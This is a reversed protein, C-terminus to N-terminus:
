FMGKEHQLQKFTSFYHNFCDFDIFILLSLKLNSAGRCNVTSTEHYNVVSTERYNVASPINRYKVPTKKAM